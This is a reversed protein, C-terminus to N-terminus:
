AFCVGSPAVHSSWYKRLMRLGYLITGADLARYRCLQRVMWGLRATQLLETIRMKLRPDQFGGAEPVHRFEPVQRCITEAAALGLRLWNLILMRYKAAPM